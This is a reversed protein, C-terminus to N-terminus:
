LTFLPRAAASPLIQIRVRQWGSLHVVQAAHASLDLVGHGFPGRDNVRVQVSLGTALNTVKLETNFPLWPSAATLKTPDFIEGDATRHGAFGPGYWTCDGYFVNSSSSGSGGSGGGSATPTGGGDKSALDTRRKREQALQARISADVQALVAKSRAIAGDLQRRAQAADKAAAAAQAAASALSQQQQQLLQQSRHIQDILDADTSSARRMMDVRSILDSFSGAALVYAVADSGGAKYSAVLSQALAAQAVEVNHGDVAIQARSAAVAARALALRLDATQERQLAAARHTQLLDLTAMVRSATSRKSALTSGAAGTPGAVAIAVLVPLVVACAWRHMRQRDTPM